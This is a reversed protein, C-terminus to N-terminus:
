VVMGGKRVLPLLHVLPNVIMALSRGVFSLFENSDQALFERSRITPTANLIILDLMQNKVAMEKAMAACDEGSELNGKMLIPVTAYKELEAMDQTLQESERRFNLFVRCDHAAYAKALVSGLGRAAGTIFVNQGREIKVDKVAQAVERATYAVTDPRRFAEIEVRSKGSWAEASILKLVSHETAKLDHYEVAIEPAMSDSSFDIALRSFLAQKGPLQMGVLYSTWLIMALQKPPLVGELQFKELFKAFFEDSPSYTGSPALVEEPLWSNAKILPLFPSPDSKPRM